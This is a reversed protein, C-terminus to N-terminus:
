ASSKRLVVEVSGSWASVRWLWWVLRMVIIPGTRELLLVYVGASCCVMCPKVNCVSVRLREMGCSFIRFNRSVKVESASVNCVGGWCRVLFWAGSM